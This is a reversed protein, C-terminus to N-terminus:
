YPSGVDGKSYDRDGFRRGFSNDTVEISEVSKETEEDMGTRKFEVTTIRDTSLNIPEGQSNKYLNMRYVRFSPNMRFIIGDPFSEEYLTRSIYKNLPGSPYFNRSRDKDEFILSTERPAFRHLHGCESIDELVDKPLNSGDITTIRGDELLEKLSITKEM